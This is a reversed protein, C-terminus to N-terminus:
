YFIEKKKKRCRKVNVILNNNRINDFLILINDFLILINDFLILINDFLILINDFLILINDFLVIFSLNKRENKM